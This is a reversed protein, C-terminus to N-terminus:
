GSESFIEQNKGTRPRYDKVIQRHSGPKFMYMGTKWVFLRGIWFTISMTM